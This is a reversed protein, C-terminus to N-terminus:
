GEDRRTYNKEPQQNNVKFDEDKVQKMARVQAWSNKHIGLLSVFLCVLGALLFFLWGVKYWWGFWDVLWLDVYLIALGGESACRRSRLSEDGRGESLLLLRRRGLSKRAQAVSGDIVVELAQLPTMVLGLELWLAVSNSLRTATELAAALLM